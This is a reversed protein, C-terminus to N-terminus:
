MTCLWEIGILFLIVGLVYVTIGKSMLDERLVPYILYMVVWVMLLGLGFWASVM